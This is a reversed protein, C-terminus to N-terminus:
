TAWRTWRSALRGLPEIEARILTRVAAERGSPGFADSLRGLLTRLETMGRSVVEEALGALCSEDLRSIFAALLRATRDIDALAVTEVASHMYRIPISLLGTPIGERTM